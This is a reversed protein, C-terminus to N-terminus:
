GRAPLLRQARRKIAAEAWRATEKLMGVFPRAYIPNPVASGFFRFDV